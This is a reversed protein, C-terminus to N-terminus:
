VHSRPVNFNWQANEYKVPFLSLLHVFMVLAKRCFKVLQKPLRDRSYYRRHTDCTRRLSAVIFWCPPSMVLASATLGIRVQFPFKHVQSKGSVGCYRARKSEISLGIWRSHSEVHVLSLSNIECTWSTKRDVSLTDDIISM